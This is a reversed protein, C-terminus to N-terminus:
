SREALKSIVLKALGGINEIADIERTRFKVGFVEETSILIEIQKFSDWGDVDKAVLAPAAALDERAFVDQLIQTLKEYVAAEDM